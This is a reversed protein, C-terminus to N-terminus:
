ARAEFRQRMKASEEARRVKLEKRYERKANWVTQLAEWLPGSECPYGGNAANGRRYVHWVAHGIRILKLEYVDIDRYEYRKRRSLTM